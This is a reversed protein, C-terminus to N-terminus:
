GGCLPQPWGSAALWTSGEPHAVRKLTQTRALQDRRWLAMQLGLARTDLGALRVAVFLGSPAADMCPSVCGDMDSVLANCALDGPPMEDLQAILGRLRAHDCFAAPAPPNDRLVRRAAPYFFDEEMDALLTLADCLSDLLEARCGPASPDAWRLRDFQRLLTRVREHNLLLQDLADRAHLLPKPRM